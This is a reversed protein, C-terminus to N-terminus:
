FKKMSIGIYLWTFTIFHNYIFEDFSFLRESLHESMNFIVSSDLTIATFIANLHFDVQNIHHLNM